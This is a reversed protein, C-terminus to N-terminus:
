DIQKFYNVLGKYLSQAISKPGWSSTLMKLRHTNSIFGMEVLSSPMTTHMNVYLDNSRVGRDPIALQNMTAQHLARALILDKGTKPYYYATTGDISANSFSDIHISIFADAKAKNAIKCRAELEEKDTAYARAVDKDTERTMIVKAGAAKLMDRLPEAISMNVDKEYVAKKSLYGIAGVDSGGHGPDICIIKGKLIKKDDASVSVSAAKKETTTKAATKSATETRKASSVVSPIDIVLRHPLGAAADPKLAFVKIDSMKMATKLNVTLRMDDGDNKAVATTVNQASITYSGAVDDKKQSNKMRITLTEGASDLSAEAEGKGSLDLVMRIFPPKGDNRATWRISTVDAAAAFRFPLFLFLTLMSLLLFIKKM